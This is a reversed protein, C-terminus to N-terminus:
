EDAPAGVWRAMLIVDAYEGPALKMAGRLRGEEEFGLKRYLGVAPENEPVVQLGLREVVPNAEAWDILAALLAEGVGRGRWDAAVTMGLEGRHRERVRHRNEFGLAGIIAGDLEAVLFLSGPADRRQSIWEREQAETMTFDDLTTAIWPSDTMVERVYSLVAAADAPEAHRITLFGGSRLTTRQAPFLGM